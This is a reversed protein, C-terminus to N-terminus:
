ISSWRARFDREAAGGFERAEALAGRQGVAGAQDDVGAVADVVDIDGLHPGDRMQVLEIDPM